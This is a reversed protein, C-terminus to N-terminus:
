RDILYVEILGEGAVGDTPSMQVTYAGAALSVLLAADPRAPDLAFAGTKTAAEAIAVAESPISGWNDNEALLASGHFRLSAHLHIRPDPVPRSVGYEALMPGVGRILVDKRGEGELVFGATLVETGSAAHGRVSVNALLTGGAASAPPAYLETLCRGTGGTESTTHLTHGGLGLDELVASGLIAGLPLSPTSWTFAGVQKAQQTVETRVGGGADEAVVTQGQFLRLHPAPLRPNPVSSPLGFGTARILTRSSTSASGANVFGVIPTPLAPGVMALVSINILRLTAPKVTVRAPSSMTTTGSQKVAVTYVGDDSLSAADRRLSSTTASPIPQDNFYWQYTAPSTGAPSVNLELRDRVFLTADQPSRAIGSGAGPILRALGLRPVDNVSVFGGALYLRSSDDAVLKFLTHFGDSNRAQPSVYGIDRRGDSFWRQTETQLSEDRMVEAYTLGTDNASPSFSPDITGDALLRLTIREVYGNRYSQGSVLARGDPYFRVNFALDTSFRYPALPPAYTTDLEGSPLLRAVAEVPIGNVHTCDLGVLLRGDDLALLATVPHQPPAEPISPRGIIGSFRTSLEGIGLGQANHRALRFRSGEWPPQALYQAAILGGTSRDHWFQLVSPVVDDPMSAPEITLTFSPDIAGTAADLRVTRSHEETITDRSSPGLYTETAIVRGESQVLIPRRSTIGETPPAFGLDVSGDAALRALFPRPHGAIETFTGGVIIRGLSDQRLSVERPVQRSTLSPSFGPDRNGLSDIRVLRAQRLLHSTTWMSRQVTQRGAVILLRGDPYTAGILASQSEGLTDRFDRVVNGTADLVFAQLRAGFYFNAEPPGVAAQVLVHGNPLSRLTGIARVNPIVPAFGTDPSGDARLRALYPPNIMGVLVSGDEQALLSSTSSVAPRFTPDIEGQPSLRRLEQGNATIVRVIVGSPLAPAIVLPSALSLQSEDVVFRPDLYGEADFRSFTSPRSGSGVALISKDSLPLFYGAGRLSHPVVTYTPDIQGNPLLRAILSDRYRIEGTDTRESVDVSALFRGQNLPKVDRYSLRQGPALETPPAFSADTAGQATLIGVGPRPVGNLHTFDGIVLIREDALVVYSQVATFSVPQSVPERVFASREEVLSPAYGPDVSFSAASMASIGFSAFFLTRALFPSM